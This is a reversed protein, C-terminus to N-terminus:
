KHIFLSDNSFNWSLVITLGQHKTQRHPFTQSRGSIWTEVGTNQVLTRGGDDIGGRGRRGRVRGTKPIQGVAESQKQTKEGTKRVGGISGGTSERSSVKYRILPNAFKKEEELTPTCQSPRDSDRSQTEEQAEKDRAEEPYNSPEVLGLIGM